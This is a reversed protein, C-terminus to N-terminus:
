NNISNIIILRVFHDLFVLGVVVRVLEIYSIINELCGINLLM